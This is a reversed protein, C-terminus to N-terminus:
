FIVARRISHNSHFTKEFISMLELTFRHGENKLNRYQEDTSEQEKKLTRLHQRIKSNEMNNLFYDYSNLLKQMRSSGCIAIMRDIVPMSFLQELVEIKKEMTQDATLGVAFLGGAYMLKRSFVLKINRIAWPKQTLNESTKNAYDVTMTRWYRIIDNLLFLSLQHDKPTHAVYKQLIERRLAKFEEENSLWEGELLLLMRRTINENTDRGGGIDKLVASRKVIKAFAGDAAPEPTVVKSIIKRFKRELAEQNASLLQENNKQIVLYDLDSEDSAERRAYSGCTTAVYEVLTSDSLEKRLLNLKEESFRKARDLSDHRNNELHFM